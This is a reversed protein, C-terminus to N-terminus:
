NLRLGLMLVQGRNWCFSPGVQSLPFAEDSQSAPAAQDPPPPRSAFPKPASIKEGADLLSWSM